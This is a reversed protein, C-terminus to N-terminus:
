LNGAVEIKVEDFYISPHQITAFVDGFYGDQVSQDARGIPTLPSSTIGASRRVVARM